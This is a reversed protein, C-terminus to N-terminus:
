DLVLNVRDGSEEGDPGHVNIIEVLWDFVTPGSGTRAATLQHDFLDRNSPHCRGLQAELQRITEPYGLAKRAVDSNTWRLTFGDEPTGFGGRLVDNFANLNRGWPTGGLVERSFEDFFTEISTTRRGDIVYAGSM